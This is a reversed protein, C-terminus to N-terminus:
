SYLIMALRPCYTEAKRPVDSPIKNEFTRNSHFAYAEGDRGDLFAAESDPDNRVRVFHRGQTLAFEAADDIEFGVEDSLVDFFEDGVV